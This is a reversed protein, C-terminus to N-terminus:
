LKVNLKQIAEAKLELLKKYNTKNKSIEQFLRNAIKNKEMDTPFRDPHCKVKLADYLQNSNFSSTIINDFDIDEKLSDAKLKIRATQKKTKNQLRALVILIIIFEAIALWMWLNHISEAMSYHGIANNANQISDNIITDNKM